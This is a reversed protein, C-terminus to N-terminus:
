VPNEGKPAPNPSRGIIATTVKPDRKVVTAVM